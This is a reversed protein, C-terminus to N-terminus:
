DGHLSVMNWGAFKKWGCMGGPRPTVDTENLWRIIVTQVTSRGYEATVVFLRRRDLYFRPGEDGNLVSPDTIIDDIMMSRYWDVSLRPLHVVSHFDRSIACARWYPAEPIIQRQFDSLRVQKVSSLSLEIPSFDDICYYAIIIRRSTGNWVFDFCKRWSITRSYHVGWTASTSIHGKM